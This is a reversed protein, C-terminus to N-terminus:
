LLVFITHNWKCSTGLTALNFSVSILITTALAPSLSFSSNTCGNFACFKNQLFFIIRSISPVSPQVLIHLYKISSLSTMDSEAVRHVAAQWARGDMTDGPLLVVTPQWARRWPIKKVWPNFRHRNRRGANTPMNKVM